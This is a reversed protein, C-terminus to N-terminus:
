RYIGGKPPMFITFIPLKQEGTGKSELTTMKERIAAMGAELRAPETDYVRVVHGSTSFVISWSQGM